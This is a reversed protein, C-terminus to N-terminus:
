SRVTEDTSRGAWSQEWAHVNSQRAWGEHLDSGIHRKSSQPAGKGEWNWHTLASWSAPLCAPLLTSAGRCLQSSPRAPGRVATSASPNHPSVFVLTVDSIGSAARRPVPPKNSVHPASTGAQSEAGYPWSLCHQAPTVLGGGGEALPASCNGTQSSTHKFGMKPKRSLGAWYAYRPGPMKLISLHWEQQQFDRGEVTGVSCTATCLSGRSLTVCLLLAARVNWKGGFVMLKGTCLRNIQFELRDAHLMHGIFLIKWLRSCTM